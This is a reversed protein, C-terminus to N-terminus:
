RLLNKQNEPGPVKGPWNVILVQGDQFVPRSRACLFYLVRLKQGVPDTDPPNSARLEPWEVTRQELWASGLQGLLQQSLGTKDNKALFTAQWLAARAVKPYEFNWVVADCKQEGLFASVAPYSLDDLRGQDVLVSPKPCLYSRPDTLMVRSYPAQALWEFARTCPLRPRLYSLRSQHSGLYAVKPWWPSASVLTAIGVVTWFFGTLWKRQNLHQGWGQASWIFAGLMWSLQYRPQALPFFGALLLGGLGFRVVPERWSGRWLLLGPLLLPSIQSSWDATRLARFSEWKWLSGLPYFPDDRYLQNYTLWPLVGASLGLLFWRTRGGTLAWLLVAPATNLRFLVATTGWLVRAGVGSAALMAAVYAAAALDTLGGDAQSLLLPSSAVLAVTYRGPLPAAMTMLSCLLQALFLAGLLNAAPEGGCGLAWAYLPHALSVLSDYIGTNTWYISGHELYLRPLAYHYVHADWHTNPVMALLGFLSGTAWWKWSCDRLDPWARSRYLLPMALCTLARITFPQLQGFASLLLAALSFALGSAALGQSWRRERSAQPELWHGLRAALELLAVLFLLALM